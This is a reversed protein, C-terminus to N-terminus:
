WGFRESTMYVQQQTRMIARLDTQPPWWDTETVRIFYRWEHQTATVARHLHWWDFETVECSRLRETPPALRAVEGSIVAYLDTTPEPPIDIALPGSVFETLCGFGTVITHFRHARREEQLTFDPRAAFEQAYLNPAGTGVPSLDKGRPAGDTHWGPIGPSFGPMLMHIKTDVVVHKRDGRLNMAGIAARALDGGYRMADDLSAQWLSPTAKIEASSPQPITNGRVLPTRNFTVRSV